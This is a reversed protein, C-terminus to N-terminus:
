KSLTSLGDVGLTDIKEAENTADLLLIRNNFSPSGATLVPPAASPDRYIDLDYKVDENLNVTCQTDTAAADGVISGLLFDRASTRKYTVCQNTNDWYARGGDLLSINAAKPLLVQGWTEYAVADNLAAANLGKKYGAIGCAMQHVEGSIVAAAAVQRIDDRDRVRLAQ